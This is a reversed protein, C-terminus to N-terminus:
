IGTSGFGGSGRQTNNLDASVFNAKTYQSVVMQAIRDGRKITFSESGLNILIVGIEGRYDSDITGPSNLVIVGNKISLGSRSRVQAEFGNPLEMSIGTPILVREMPKLIVDVTINAKLDVGAAGSTAYFPLGLDTASNDINIKVDIQM